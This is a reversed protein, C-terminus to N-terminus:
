IQGWIIGWCYQFSYHLLFFTLLVFILFFDQKRKKEGRLIGIGTSVGQILLLLKPLCTGKKSYQFQCSIVRSSYACNLYNCWWINRGTSQRSLDVSLVTYLLLNKWFYNLIDANYFYNTSILVIIKETGQLRRWCYSYSNEPCEGTVM